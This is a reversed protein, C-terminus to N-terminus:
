GKAMFFPHKSIPIIIKRNENMREKVRELLRQNKFVNMFLKLRGMEEHEECAWNWFEEYRMGVSDCYMRLHNATAWNSWKMPANLDFSKLINIYKGGDCFRRGGNKFTVSTGSALHENYLPLRKGYAYIFMLTATGPSFLRNDWYKTANLGEETM